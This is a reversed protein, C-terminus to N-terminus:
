RTNSVIRWCATGLGICSLYLSALIGLGTALVWGQTNRLVSAAANGLAGFITVTTSVPQVWETPAATVNVSTLAPWLLGYLCGMVMAFLVVSLWQFQRPWSMWPRRYWALAPQRAIQALVRPALTAPASRPPLQKLTRDAWAALGAENSQRENM